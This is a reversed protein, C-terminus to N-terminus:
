EKQIWVNTLSLDLRERIDQQEMRGQVGDSIKREM